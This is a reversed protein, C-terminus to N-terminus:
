IGYKKMFFADVEDITYSRTNKLSDIGKALEKNLEEKSLSALSLIKHWKNEKSVIHLKKALLSGNAM